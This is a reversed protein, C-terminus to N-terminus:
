RVKEKWAELAAIDAQVRARHEWAPSAIELSRRLEAIGDTYRGREVQRLAHQRAAEAADDPGSAATAPEDPRPTWPAGIGAIEGRLRARESLPRIMGLWVRERSLLADLAGVRAQLSAVDGPVAAPLRSLERDIRSERLAVASVAGSLVFAIGALKWRSGFDRRRTEDRTALSRIRMAVDRRGADIRLIQRLWAIAEVNKGRRVAEDASRLCHEIVENVAPDGPDAPPQAVPAEPSDESLPEADPQARESVLDLVCRAREVDGARDLLVALRRGEAQLSIRQAELVTPHALGLVVLAELKRLDDPEDCLCEVLSRAVSAAAREDFEAAARRMQARLPASAGPGVVPMATLRAVVDEVMLHNSATM